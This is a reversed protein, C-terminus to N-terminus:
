NANTTALLYYVIGNVNIAIKNTVTTNTIGANTVGSGECYFAPITNGASRDISYLTITDAAAATPASGTGITLCQTGTTPALTTGILLNKSSTVRMSESSGFVFIAPWSSASTLEIASLASNGTFRFRETGGTSLSFAAATTGNITLWSYGSFSLPSATGIGLAPNTNNWFLNASNGLADAGAGFPIRGATLSTLGTGGNPVSLASGLTLAGSLAGNGSKDVSFSGTTAGTVTLDLLKSSAGSATNTVAMKIGAFTTGAADWTDTLNYIYSM